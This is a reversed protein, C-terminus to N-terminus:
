PRIALFTNLLRKESFFSLNYNETLLNPLRETVAVSSTPLTEVSAALIGTKSQLTQRDKWVPLM